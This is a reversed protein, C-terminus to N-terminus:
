HLGLTPTGSVNEKTKNTLVRKSSAWNDILCVIHRHGEAALLLWLQHIDDEQYEDCEEEFEENYDDWPNRDTVM